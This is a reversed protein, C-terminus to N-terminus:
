ESKEHDTTGGESAAPPHIHCRKSFICSGQESLRDLYFPRLLKTYCVNYSTIRYYAVLARGSETMITPHEIGNKDLVHMVAEVVDACYEDVTYNRSSAYNTQSGDYDVALGGGLDLYGMAAGENKLESYVRAAELVASRIDRINPVQSGLHYHLLKLCHLKDQSKLKDVIEILQATNLGFISRDGSAYYSRIAYM